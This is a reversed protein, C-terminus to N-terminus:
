LVRKANFRTEISTGSLSWAAGGNQWARIDVFDTTGNLYVLDQVPIAPLVRSQTTLGDLILTAAYSAGNKFISLIVQTAATESFFGGKIVANIDYYGAVTPKFQASAGTAFEGRTDISANDFRIVTHVSTNPISQPSTLEARVKSLKQSQNQLNFRTGDHIIKVRDTTKFEGGQLAAGDVFVNVDGLTALNVTTAGPNTANPIFDAELGVFYSAPAQQGTKPSLTVANATGGATYNVARGTALEIVGQLYQSVLATDAAGSAAQGMVRLLAQQFGLKDNINEKEWPYGDLADLVTENIASGEPYAATPAATGIPYQATQDLAM